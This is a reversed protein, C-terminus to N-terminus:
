FNDIIFNFLMELGVVKIKTSKRDLTMKIQFKFKIYNQMVM